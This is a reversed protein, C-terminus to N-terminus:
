QPSGSYKDRFQSCCSFVDLRTELPVLTDRFCKVTLHLGEDLDVEPKWGLEREAKSCDFYSLYIDGPRKPARRIEVGHGIEKMLGQYITNVSSGKGYCYLLSRREWCILALLNAGAVDTGRIRLRKAAGWGLRHPGTRQHPNTPFFHCHCRGRRLPRTPPRIRQRIAPDHYGIWIAEELVPSVIESAMKTTAYPSKPHQATNEDVPM